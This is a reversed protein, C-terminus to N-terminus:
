VSDSALCKQASLMVMVERGALKLLPGAKRCTSMELNGCRGRETEGFKGVTKYSRTSSLVVLVLINPFMRVSLRIEKPYIGEMQFLQNTKGVRCQSICRCSDTGVDFESVIGGLEAAEQLELREGEGQRWQWWWGQGGAGGM